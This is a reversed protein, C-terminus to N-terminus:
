VESRTSKKNEEEVSGTSSVYEKKSQSDEFRFSLKIPEYLFTAYRKYDHTDTRLKSSIKRAFGAISQEPEPEKAWDQIDGKGFLFYFSIGFLDVSM